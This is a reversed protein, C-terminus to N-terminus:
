SIKRILGIFYSPSFLLRKGYWSFMEGDVLVIKSNPFLLSVEHVHKQKFPYPESSLFIYDPQIQQYRESSILPYRTEHKMINVFGCREMMDSIFTDGGVSMYPDKWILYLASPNGEVRSKELLTFQQQIAQIMTEALSSNNTMSGVANIMGYSDDLNNVDSTWVPYEKQLADIQEKTNEEKNAIILDPDLAKIKKFNVAKTGGVRAKTRFWEEPHVCFKTIGVVKDDLGLHFLLESQSPVLSIIREPTRELELPHNIQDVYKM